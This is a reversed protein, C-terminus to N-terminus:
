WTVMRIPVLVDATGVLVVAPLVGRGSPKSRAAVVAILAASLGFLGGQTPPGPLALAVVFPGAAAGALHM